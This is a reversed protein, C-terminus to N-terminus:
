SQQTWVERWFEGLLEVSKSDAAPLVQSIYIAGLGRDRNVFWGINPMGNWTLSGARLNPVDNKVILGGLGFAVEPQGTRDGTLHKHM